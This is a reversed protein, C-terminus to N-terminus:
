TGSHSWLLERAERLDPIELAAPFWAIITQLGKVAQESRDALFQLRALDRVARLEFVKVDRFRSWEIAQLYRIHADKINGRSASLLGRLRLIEAVHSREDTETVIQEAERIVSDAEDYKEARVLCDAFDGLYWSM